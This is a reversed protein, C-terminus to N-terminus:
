LSRSGSNYEGFFCCAFVVSYLFIFIGKIHPIHFPHVYEEDEYQEYDYSSYDLHSVLLGSANNEETSNYEM